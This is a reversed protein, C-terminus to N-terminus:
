YKTAVSDWIEITLPISGGNGTAQGQLTIKKTDKGSGSQSADTISVKPLTFVIKYPYGTAIMSPSVWTIQEAVYVDGRYDTEEITSTTTNYFGEIDTKVEKLGHTAKNNYLGSDYTAEGEDLSESITVSAKTIGEISSGGIGVVGSIATFTSLSPDDLTEDLTASVEARGKVSIKLSIPKKADGSFEYSDPILGTFGVVKPGEDVIASFSKQEDKPGLLHLTHKHVGSAVSTPDAPEKFGYKLIPLNEPKLNLEIDGSVSYGNVNLANVTTSALLSEESEKTVTEKLTHSLYNLNMDPDALTGWTTEPGIQLKLGIGTYKDAM